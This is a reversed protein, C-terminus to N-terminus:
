VHIVTANEYEGKEWREQLACRAQCRTISDESPSDNGFLGDVPSYAFIYFCM